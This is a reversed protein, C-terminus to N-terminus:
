GALPSPCDLAAATLRMLENEAPSAKGDDMVLRAAAELVDKRLAYSAGGLLRLAEELRLYDPM